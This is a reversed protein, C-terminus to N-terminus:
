LIFRKSIIAFPQIRRQRSLDDISAEGDSPEKKLETDEMEDNEKMATKMMESEKEHLGRLKRAKRGQKRPSGKGQESTIRIAM